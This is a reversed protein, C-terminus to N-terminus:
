KFNYSKSINDGWSFKETDSKVTTLFVSDRENGSNAQIIKVFKPYLEWADEESKCFIYSCDGTKFKISDNEHVNLSIGYFETNTIEDLTTNYLYVKGSKELKKFPHDIEKQDGYMDIVLQSVYESDTTNYHKLLLNVHRKLCVKVISGLVIQIGTCYVTLYKDANGNEDFKFNRNIFKHVVSEQWNLDLMQENTLPGEFLYGINGIDHRDSVMGITVTNTITSIKPDSFVSGAFCISNDDVQM